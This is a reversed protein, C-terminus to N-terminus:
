HDSNEHTMEKLCTLCIASRPGNGEVVAIAARSGKELIKNCQVCIANLNLVAEQWGLVRYSAPHIDPTAAPEHDTAPRASGKRASRTIDASDAVINEVLSFTNSLINRVLNSVSVGLSGAEKQIKKELDQSIRTHLVKEKKDDQPM